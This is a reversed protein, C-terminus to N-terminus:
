YPPKEVSSFLKGLSEVPQAAAECTTCLFDRTGAQAFNDKPAFDFSFFEQL